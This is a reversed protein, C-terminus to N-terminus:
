MRETGRLSTESPKWLTSSSYPLIYHKFRLPGYIETQHNSYNKRVPKLSAWRPSSCNATWCTLSSFWAKSWQPGAVPLCTSTGDWLLIATVLSSFGRRTNVIIWSQFGLAWSIVPCMWWRLWWIQVYCVCVCLKDHPMELMDVSDPQHKHPLTQGTFEKKCRDRVSTELNEMQIQVKKYDRLAQKSKRRNFM